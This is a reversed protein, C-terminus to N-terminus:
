PGWAQTECMNRFMETVQADSGDDKNMTLARGFELSYRAGAKGMLGHFITMDKLEENVQALAYYLFPMRQRVALPIIPAGAKRALSIATPHWPKERLQWHKWSWESMRGSPFIVLCREEKFATMARRLLDRSHNRSRQHDRWEVPIVREELGPCVRLADANAFYLMDPRRAKLADWVAIGDAIGGPHNAVVVCAGSEPIHDLGSVDKSLRLYDSAWDLCETGNLPSIADAMDVARRYGLMPYGITRILPWLPTGILKPAREEILRDVIHAPVAQAPDEQTNM